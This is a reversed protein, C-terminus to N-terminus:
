AEGFLKRAELLEALSFVIDYTEPHDPGLTHERGDLSQRYLDEAEHFKGKSKMEDAILKLNNLTMQGPNTILKASKTSMTGFNVHHSEKKLFLYPISKKLIFRKPYM